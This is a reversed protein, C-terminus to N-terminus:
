KWLGGPGYYQWFAWDRYRGTPPRTYTPEPECSWYAIWLDYETVADTLYNNVYNLNTYILPSIGTRNKVTEMWELVWNTLATRGLSSGVELDLVPRLYGSKLYDGSAELFWNAEEEGTNGLDPRAFHYVGLYVGANEGEAMNNHFMVDTWGVGETGKVFAFKIGANAVQMWGIDGQWHSVDIGDVYESINKAVATSTFKPVPYSQEPFTPETKLLRFTDLVQDLKAIVLEKDFETIQSDVLIDPNQYHLLQTLEYCAGKAFTRYVIRHYFEGMGGEIVEDKVFSTGNLDVKMLEDRMQSPTQYVSGPKFALCAKEQDAGELVHILLSANILNTGQYADTDQLHFQWVPAEPNVGVGANLAVQNLVSKRVVEKPFMIEFAFGESRFWDWGEQLVPVVDETLEAIMELDEDPIYIETLAPEETGTIRAYVTKILVAPDMLTDVLVVCVILCISILLFLWIKDSKFM